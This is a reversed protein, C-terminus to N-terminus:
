SKLSAALEVLQHDSLANSAQIRYWVGKDLWTAQNKGYLYITRGETEVTQYSATAQPAVYRERLITDNWTTSQEVVAFSRNDSNSHYNLTIHGPSYAFQGLTFGAPHYTPVAAAFGAKSSALKANLLVMNQYGIFGVLLLVALASSILRLRRTRRAPKHKVPKQEHATAQKLAHEFIDIPTDVAPEPAPEIVPRPKIDLVPTSAAPKVTKVANPHNAVPIVTTNSFHTILQSQPVKMAREVKIPDAQSRHEVRVVVTTVDSRPASKAKIPKKTAAPKKVATRMLTKGDEPQHRKAHKATGRAVDMHTGTKTAAAPTRKNATSAQKSTKPTTQQKGVDCTRIPPLKMSM